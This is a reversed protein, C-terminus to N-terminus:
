PMYVLWWRTPVFLHGCRINIKCFPPIKKKLALIWPMDFQWTKLLSDIRSKILFLFSFPFVLSCLAFRACSPMNQVAPCGAVPDHGQHPGLGCNPDCRQYAETATAACHLSHSENLSSGAPDISTTATADRTKELPHHPDGRVPTSGTLCAHM